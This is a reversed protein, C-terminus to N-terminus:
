YFDVHINGIGCEIELLNDANNDIDKNVHSYSRDNIVVDGLVSKLKYSYDEEDGDLNLEIRGIGCKIVNNGTLKGKIKIEGFGCEIESDNASINNITMRGAGVEYESDGSIKLQRIELDGAGVRLRGEEASLTEVDAQGAGIDLKCKEAMFGAPLTIVIEKDSDDIHLGFVTIDFHKMNLIGYKERIHWVGDSVYSKFLKEPVNRAKISFGDGERIIVRGRSFEFDLSEVNEYKEYFSHRKFGRWNLNAGCIAAVIVIATGLGIALLSITLWVKTFAKM